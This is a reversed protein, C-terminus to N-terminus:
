TGGSRSRGSSMGSSTFCKRLWSARSFLRRGFCTVGAARSTSFRYRHRPLMRSSLFVISRTMMMVSPSVMSTESKGSDRRDSLPAVRVGADGAPAVPDAPPSAPVKRSNLSDASRAHSTSFSRSFAQFMEFVASTM